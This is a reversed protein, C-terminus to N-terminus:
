LGYVGSDAICHIIGFAFSSNATKTILIMTYLVPWSSTKGGAFQDSLWLHGGHSGYNRLPWRIVKKDVYKKAAQKMESEYASKTFYSSTDPKLDPNNDKTRSFKRQFIWGCGPLPLRQCFSNPFGTNSYPFIARCIFPYSCSFVRWKQGSALSIVTSRWRNSWIILQVLALVFSLFM